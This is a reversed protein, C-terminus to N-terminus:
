PLIEFDILALIYSTSGTTITLYKCLQEKFLLISGIYTGLSVM